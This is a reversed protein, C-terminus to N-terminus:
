TGMYWSVHVIICITCVLTIYTCQLSKYETKNFISKGKEFAREHKGERKRNETAALSQRPAGWSSITHSPIKSMAGGKAVEQLFEVGVVPVDFHKVREMKATFANKELEAKSSICLTTETSVSETVEGGLEKIQLSLNAKTIPLRGM